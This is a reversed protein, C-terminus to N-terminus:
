TTVNKGSAHVALVTARSKGSKLITSFSDSTAIEWTVDIDAPPMGGDLDLPRIALKTWLVVSNADPDGSAVGLTFPNDAFKPNAIARGGAETLLPLSAITALFLRRNM